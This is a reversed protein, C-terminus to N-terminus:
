LSRPGPSPFFGLGFREARQLTIEIKVDQESGCAPIKMKGDIGIFSHESLLVVVNEETLEENARGSSIAWGQGGFDIRPMSNRYGRQRM